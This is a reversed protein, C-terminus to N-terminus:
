RSSTSGPAVARGEPTGRRHRGRRSERTPWAHPWRRDTRHTMLPGLRTLAATRRNLAATRRRRASDPCTDTSMRPMTMSAISSITPPTSTVAACSARTRNTSAASAAANSAASANSSAVAYRLPNDSATTSLEAVTFSAAAAYRETRGLGDALVHRVLHELLVGGPLFAM